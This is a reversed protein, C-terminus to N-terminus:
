PITQPPAGRPFRSALPRGGPPGEAVLRFRELHAGSEGAGGDDRHLRHELEPAALGAADATVVFRARLRAAIAVATAEDGAVYFAEVADYKAEDLWPGFNNASVPRRAFYVMAHGLTTPTLLGWEPRAGPDLFGSTEPTVQRVIMGFARVSARPSLRAPQPPEPRLAAQIRPLHVGTIGPVLMGVAAALALATAVGGPLRRALRDRAGALTWAFVVSGPVAFDNAFRVQQLALAALVTSWAFLVLAPERRDARLRVGVLVPVLPVLWAFLGFRELPTRKLRATTADFLPRQEPNRPSWTDTKAVFAGGGALGERVSPLALLPLAL